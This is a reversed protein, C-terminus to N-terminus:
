QVNFHVQTHTDAKFFDLLISRRLPWALGACVCVCVCVCVRVCAHGLTDEGKAEM